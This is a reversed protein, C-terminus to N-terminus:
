GAVTPLGRSALNDALGDADALLNAFSYNSTNYFSALVYHVHPLLGLVRVARFVALLQEPQLRDVDDIVVLTPRALAHM